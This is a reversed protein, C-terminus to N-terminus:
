YTPTETLIFEIPEGGKLYKNKKTLIDMIVRLSETTSLNLATIQDQLQERQISSTRDIREIRSNIGAISDLTEKLQTLSGKSLSKFGQALAKLEEFDAVSPINKLKSLEDDIRKNIEIRLGELEKTFQATIRDVQEKIQGLRYLDANAIQTELISLRDELKKAIEPKTISKLDSLELRISDIQQNMSQILRISSQLNTIQGEIETKHAEFEAPTVHKMTELNTLRELITDMRGAIMGYSTDRKDQEEQKENILELQKRLFDYSVKLEQYAKGLKEVGEKNAKTNIQTQLSDLTRYLEPINLENIKSSGIQTKIQEITALAQDVAESSGITRLQEELKTIRTKLNSINNSMKINNNELESFKKGVGQMTREFTEKTIFNLNNIFTKIDAQTKFGQSKLFNPLEQMLEKKISKKIQDLDLGSFKSDIYERLRKELEDNNSDPRRNLAQMFLIPSILQEAGQPGAIFSM